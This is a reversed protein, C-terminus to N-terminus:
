LAYIWHGTSACKCLLSDLSNRVLAPMPLVETMHPLEEPIGEIVAKGIQRWGQKYIM